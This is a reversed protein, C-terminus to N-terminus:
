IFKNYIVIFVIQHAILVSNKNLIQIHGQLVNYVNAVILYIIKTIIELATTVHRQVLFVLEVNLVINVVGKYKYVEKM